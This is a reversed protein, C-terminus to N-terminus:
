DRPSPSTYLLCTNHVAGDNMNFGHSAIRVTADRIWSDEVDDFNICFFARNEDSTDDLFLSQISLNEIGTQTIRGSINTRFVEGSGYQDEIVEVM